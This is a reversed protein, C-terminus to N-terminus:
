LLNSVLKSYEDLSEISDLNTLMNEVLFVLDSTSNVIVEADEKITSDPRIRFYYKGNQYHEVIGDIDNIQVRESSQFRIKKNVLKVAIILYNGFDKIESINGQSHRGSNVASYYDRLVELYSRFIPFVEM